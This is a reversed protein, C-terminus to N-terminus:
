WIRGANGQSLVPIGVLVMGISASLVCVVRRAEFLRFTNRV